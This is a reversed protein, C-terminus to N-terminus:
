FDFIFMLRGVYPLLDHIMVLPSFNFTLTVKQPTVPSYQGPSSHLWKRWAVTPHCFTFATVPAGRSPINQHLSLCLLVHCVRRGGVATVQRGGRLPVSSCSPLLSPHLSPSLSPPSTGVHPRIPTFSVLFSVPDSFFMHFAVLVTLSQIDTTVRKGM